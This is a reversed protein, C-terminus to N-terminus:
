GAGAGGASRWDGDPVAATGVGGAVGVAVHGATGRGAWRHAGPWAIRHLFTGTCRTEYCNSHSEVPPNPELRAEGGTRGVRSCPATASTSSSSFRGHWRTRTM